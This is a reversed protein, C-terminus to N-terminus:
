YASGEYDMSALAATAQSAIECGIPLSHGHIQRRTGAWAHHGADWRLGLAKLTARHPYTQGIVYVREDAKTGLAALDMEQARAELAKLAGQAVGFQSYGQSAAVQVQARAQEIAQNLEIRTM